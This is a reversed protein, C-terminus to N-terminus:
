EPVPLWRFTGSGVWYAVRDSDGGMLMQRHDGPVTRFASGGHPMIFVLTASGSRKEDEASLMIGARTRFAHGHLAPPFYIGTRTEKLAGNLAFEAVLGRGPDMLTISPGGLILKEAGLYREMPPLAGTKLHRSLLVGEASYRRLIETDPVDAMALDHVWGAAWLSGDDGFAIQRPAFQDTQVAKEIAGDKRLLVLVSVRRNGDDVLHAIAAIRGNPHLTAHVLRVYAREAGPIRVDARVRLRGDPERVWLTPPNNTYGISGHAFAFPIPSAPPWNDLIVDSASASESIAWCALLVSLFLPRLFCTM